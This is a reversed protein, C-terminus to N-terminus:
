VLFAQPPLSEDHNENPIVRNIRNIGLHLRSRCIIAGAPFETHWRVNNTGHMAMLRKTICYLDASGPAIQNAKINISFDDTTM